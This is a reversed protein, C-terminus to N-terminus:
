LCRGSIELLTLMATILGTQILLLIAEMTGAHRLALASLRLCITFLFIMAVSSQRSGLVREFRHHLHDKGM